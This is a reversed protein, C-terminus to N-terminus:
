VLSRGLLNASSKLTSENRKTENQKMENGKNKFLM